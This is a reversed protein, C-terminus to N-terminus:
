LEIDVLGHLADADHGIQPSISTYERHHPLEPKEIIDLEPEPESSLTNERAGRIFLAPHTPWHMNFALDIDLTGYLHMNNTQTQMTNYFWPDNIILNYLAWYAEHITTIDHALRNYNYKIQQYSTNFDSPRTMVNRVPPTGYRTYYNHHANTLIIKIHNTREDSLFDRMMTNNYMDVLFRMLRLDHSNSFKQRNIYSDESNFGKLGFFNYGSHNGCKDHINSKYLISYKSMNCESAKCILDHITSNDPSYVRGYDIIKVIYKTKLIITNGNVANKFQLTIYGGQPVTYLLVNYAHLDYHTFVGHLSSLTAYIQFLIIPLEVQIEYGNTNKYKNFWDGLTTAGEIYQILVAFNGNQQCSKGAHEIDYVLGQGNGYYTALPTLTSSLLNTAFDTADFGGLKSNKILENKGNKGNNYIFAGYTELFIPFQIAFQNIYKLGNYAELYLNDAEIDIASKLLADAKYNDRNYKIAVTFGNDGSSITKITYAYKFSTFDFFKDLRESEKGFAICTNAEDCISQLYSIQAKIPGGKFKERIPSTVEDTLPRPSSRPSKPVVYNSYKEPELEPIPQQPQQQAKPRKWINKFLNGFLNSFFWRKKPQQIVPPPPPAPPQAQLQVIDARTPLPVRLMGGRARFRKRSRIKHYKKRRRRTYKM